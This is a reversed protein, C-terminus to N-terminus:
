IVLACCKGQFGAVTAPTSAHKKWFYLFCFSAILESEIYFYSHLDFPRNKEQIRM